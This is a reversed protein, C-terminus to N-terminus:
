EVGELNIGLQMCRNRLYSGAKASPIEVGSLQLQKPLYATINYRKAVYDVTKQNNIHFPKSYMLALCERFAVHEYKLDHEFLGLGFDFLPSISFIHNGFLVGFNNLHRDENGVLYDLLTMTILFDTYDLKCFKEISELVFNWKEDIDAREDFYINNADIIRKFPIYSLGAAFNKSYVGYAMGNADTIICARQELVRACKAPLQKGIESSIVEVLYDKWYRGQYFFQEKVYVDKESHYWKRQNGKSSSLLQLEVMDEAYFIPLNDKKDFFNMRESM